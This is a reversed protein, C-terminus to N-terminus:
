PVGEQADMKPREVIITYKELLTRYFQEIREKRRANEWERRVADRVDDLPPLRGDRREDVIVLHVGYGSSIPGQWTGPPLAVIATAFQAGFLRAIDRTSINAYGHELQIRDGLGSADTSGDRNLAMVLDRVHADLGNRHQEPNVYVQRFSLRPAIRFNDPHAALYAVLDAETPEVQSTLDEAIFDLKQRIRRRIITDDRDLGLALGERYAVEERIFDNILGELEERTAPRQWTRAFLAALHEIKGASVVIHAQRPASDDRLFSSAVFLAAGLLLFHLLPERMLRQM